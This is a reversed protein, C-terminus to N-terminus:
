RRVSRLDMLTGIARGSAVSKRDIPTYGPDTNESMVSRYSQYPSWNRGEWALILLSKDDPENRFLGVSACNNM